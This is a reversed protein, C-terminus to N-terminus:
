NSSPIFCLRFFTHLYRSCYWVSELGFSINHKNKKIDYWVDIDDSFHDVHYLIQHKDCARESVNIKIINYDRPRIYYTGLILDM